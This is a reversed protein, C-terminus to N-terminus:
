ITKLGFFCLILVMKTLNIKILIIKYYHEDKIFTKVTEM